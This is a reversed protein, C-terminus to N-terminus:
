AAEREVESSGEMFSGECVPSGARGPSRAVAVVIRSTASRAPTEVAVTLRTSAPTPWGLGAVAVATM